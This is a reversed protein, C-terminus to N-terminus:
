MRDGNNKNKTNNNVKIIGQLAPAGSHWGKADKFRM